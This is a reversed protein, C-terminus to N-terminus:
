RYDAGAGLRPHLGDALRDGSLAYGVVTTGYSHAVVTVDADDLDLGAVFDTLEGSGTRAKHDM